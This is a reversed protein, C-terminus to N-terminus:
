VPIFITLLLKCQFYSPFTDFLKLSLIYAHLSYADEKYVTESSGHKM